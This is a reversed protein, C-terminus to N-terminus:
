LYICVYVYINIYLLSRPQIFGGKMWVCVRLFLCVSIWPCMRKCVRVHACGGVCLCVCVFV